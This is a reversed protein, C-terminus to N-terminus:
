GGLYKDDAEKFLRIDGGWANKERVLVHDKLSVLDTWPQRRSTTNDSSNKSEPTSAASDLNTPLANHESLPNSSNM